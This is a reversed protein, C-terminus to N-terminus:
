EDVIVDVVFKGDLMPNQIKGVEKHEPHNLYADLTAPDDSHLKALVVWQCGGNVDSRSTLTFNPRWTFDKVLDPMRRKLAVEEIFHQRIREESFEPKFKLAVIHLIHPM